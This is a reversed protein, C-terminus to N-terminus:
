LGTTARSMRSGGAQKNKTKIKEPKRIEPKTIKMQHCKPKLQKPVM